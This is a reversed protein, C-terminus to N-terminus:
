PQPPSSSPLPPSESLSKFRHLMMLAVTLFLWNHLLALAFSHFTEFLRYLLTWEQLLSRLVGEAYRMLTLLATGTLALGLLALWCRGLLHLAQGGVLYFRCGPTAAAVAIPLPSFFLLTEIMLSSLPLPATSSSWSYLAIWVANFATLGILMPWRGLLAWWSTTFLSRSPPQPPDLWLMVLQILWVQSAGTFLALALLKLMLLFTELWEPWSREPPILESVVWLTILGTFIGIGTLTGSRPRNKLGCRYPQRALCWLAAALGIPLLLSAPWAPFLQHLLVTFHGASTFLLEPALHHWDTWDAPSFLTMQHFGDSQMWRNMLILVGTLAVLQPQNKIFDFADSFAQRLPHFHLHVFLGAACGAIALATWLWLPLEATNTV